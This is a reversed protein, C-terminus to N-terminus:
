KGIDGNCDNFLCKMVYGSRNKLDISFLKRMDSYSMNHSRLFMSKSFDAKQAQGLINKGRHVTDAQRIVPMNLAASMGTTSTADGDTIMHKVRMDTELLYKGIEFAM